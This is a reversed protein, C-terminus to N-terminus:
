SHSTSLAYINVEGYSSAPEGYKTNSSQDYLGAKFFLNNQYQPPPQLTLKQVGNLYLTITGKSATLTVTFVTGLQYNSILCNTLPNDQDYKTTLCSGNLYIMLLDSVSDHIQGAVLHPNLTPLHMIAETITMSNVGSNVSWDKTGVNGNGNTERLESRAFISGVAPVGNTPAYFQVANGAPTVSMYASSYTGLAPYTVDAAGTPLTLTWHSLDLLQGPAPAPSAFVTVSLLTAVGVVCAVAAAILATVARRSRKPGRKGPSPWPGLVRFRAWGSKASTAISSM